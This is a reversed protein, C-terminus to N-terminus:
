AFSNFATNYQKGLLCTHETRVFPTITHAYTMRDKRSQSEQKMAGYCPNCFKLTFYEGDKSM